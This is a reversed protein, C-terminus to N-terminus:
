EVTLGKIRQKIDHLRWEKDKERSFLAEKEPGVVHVRVIPAGESLFQQVEEGAIGYGM